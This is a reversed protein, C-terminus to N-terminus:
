ANARMRFLRRVWPWTKVIRWAGHGVIVSGCLMTFVHSAGTMAEFVASWIPLTGAAGGAAIESVGKLNEVVESRM